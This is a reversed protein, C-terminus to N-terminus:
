QKVFPRTTSGDRSSIRLYYSGPLLSELFLTRESSTGYTDMKKAGLVDFIEFHSQLEPTLNTVTLQTTAPTPYIRIDNTSTSKQHVAGTGMSEEYTLMADAKVNYYRDVQRHRYKDCPWYVIISDAIAYEGLGFHQMLSNQSGFGGGTSVQRTHVIGGAYVDITTGIAEKATRKAVFRLELWHNPPDIAPTINKLLHFDPIPSNPDDSLQMLAIDLLGDHNYDFYAAGRAKLDVYMGDMAEDTVDKFYGGINEYFLSTDHKTPNTHELSFFTGLAGHVIFVDELGNNDFDGVLPTWSACIYTGGHREFGNGHPLRAPSANKFTGDGNNMMLSDPGITTEYLDFNGDLNFDGIGIGMCLLHCDLHMAKSVEVFTAHGTEMLMNKYVKNPILQIGNDNGLIIDLDGDRDIDFFIPINSTATDSDIHYEGARETFTGDGNNEYFWNPFGKYTYAIKNGLVDVGFNNEALWRAVYFDNDGDGDYDGFSASMSQNVELPMVLHAKVTVDTFTGDGNNHWLMDHSQCASYIDPLGDNDYDFATGGRPFTRWKVSADTMHVSMNPPTIDKFTGDHMNIFIKDSDYGGSLYLDDWGDGNFDFVVAGPGAEDAGTSRMYVRSSPTVDRFLYQSYGLEPLLFLGTLILVCLKATGFHRTVKQM